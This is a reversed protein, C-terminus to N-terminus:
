AVYMANIVFKYFLLEIREGQLEYEDFFDNISDDIFIYSNEEGLLKPIFRIRSEAPTLTWIEGEKSYFFDYFMTYPLCNNNPSLWLKRDNAGTAEMRSLDKNGSPVSTCGLFITTLILAVLIRNKMKREKTNINAKLEAFIFGFDGNKGIKRMFAM